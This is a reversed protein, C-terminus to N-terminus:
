ADLFEVTEDGALRRSYQEDEFIVEYVPRGSSGQLTREVVGERPQILRPGSVRVPRGWDRYEPNDTM